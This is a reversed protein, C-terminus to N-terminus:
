PFCQCIGLVLDWIRVCEWRGIALSPLQIQSNATSNPLQRNPTRQLKPNPFQSKVFGLIMFICNPTFPQTHVDGTLVCAKSSSAGFTLFIPKSRNSNPM